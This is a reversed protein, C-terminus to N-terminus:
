TDNAPDVWMYNIADLANTLASDTLNDESNLTFDLREGPTRAM